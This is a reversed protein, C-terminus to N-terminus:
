SSAINDRQLVVTANLGSSTQITGSTSFPFYRVEGTTNKRCRIYCDAPTTGEFTGDAVGDTATGTGSGAGTATFAVGVTNSSAGIATFDTTGVTVITYKTGTVFSGATIVHTDENFIESDDASLYVSTQVNDIPKNNKDVVTVKLAVSGQIAVFEGSAYTSPNSTGTKLIAVVNAPSTTNDVDNENGSFVLNTYNFPTAISYADSTSWYNNTGGSLATHTVTDNTFSVVSGFSKDTENYVVDGATVGSAFAGTDQLETTESGTNEATGSVTGNWTAHEIGHAIDSSAHSNALFNCDEIDINSNWLLASRSSADAVGDDYVTAFNCNRITIGGEPDFTNCGSFNCSFMNHSTDTSGAFTGTVKEFNCGYLNLTDVNGDNLDINLTYSDNGVVTWGNRGADSGVAKGLTVSQTGTGGILNISFFGVPVSTTVSTGDYYLPEALFIKADVDTFTSDTAATVDGVDLEGKLEFATDSDNLSTFIGYRNTEEDSLIDGKLDDTTGTGTITLGTGVDIADVNFNEFRATNAGVDAYAGFYRVSALNIATGASRSVTETPDVVLRKWGGSYTDNGEFTWEHYQTTSPTSSELFIGMGHSNRASLLAAALFNVWVYVMQGEEAGGGTFDLENGAGIDFYVVVHQKNVVAGVSGTGEIYGDAAAISPGGGSGSIKLATWGTTSDATDVNGFGKWTVTAAM